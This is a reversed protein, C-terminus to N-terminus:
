EKPWLAPAKFNELATRKAASLGPLFNIETVKEIEAITTIKCTVYTVWADGNHKTNEHPLLIAISEDASFTKKNFIIKYFHTPRAVRNGPPVRKAQSVFGCARNEMQTM